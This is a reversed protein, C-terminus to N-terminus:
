LLPHDLLSLVALITYLVLAFALGVTMIQKFFKHDFKLHMFWGAVYLFKVIMLIILMPVAFPGFEFFYTAVELGTLVALVAAITVYQRPTPHNTHATKAESTTTM